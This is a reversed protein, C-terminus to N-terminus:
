AHRRAPRCPTLFGDFTLWGLLLSSAGYRCLLARQDSQQDGSVPSRQELGGLCGPFRDPDLDGLAARILLKTMSRNERASRLLETFGEVDAATMAAVEATVHAVLHDGVAAVLGDKSGFYRSVLAHTLGASRAVKRLSAGDPGSHAYLEVAADLIASTSAERQQERTRTPTGM